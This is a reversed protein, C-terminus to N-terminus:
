KSYAKAYPSWIEHIPDDKSSKGSHHWDEGELKYNFELQAGVRDNNRSFFEINETYKGNEATYTGGGSGFFERTASNFAIWQFRGGGLIKVTRRDGPKMKDLKGDMKRGTIVWNGNLANKASSIREWIQDGAPTQIRFRDDNIFSLETQISEGSMESSRTDFDLTISYDRSDYEGGLAWLFENSGTSKAGEAFYNDQYIRVVEKDLLKQGNEETLKWSGELSQAYLCSGFLLAILIISRKM